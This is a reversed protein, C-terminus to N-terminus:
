SDRGNSLRHIRGSGVRDCEARRGLALFRSDEEVETKRSTDAVSNFFFAVTASCAIATIVGLSAASRFQGPRRRGWVLGCALLGGLKFMPILNEVGSLDTAFGAVEGTHNPVLVMVFLAMLVANTTLVLTEGVRPLSLFVWLIAFAVATFLLGVEVIVSKPIDVSNLNVGFVVLPLFLFFVVPLGGAALLRGVLQGSRRDTRATPM